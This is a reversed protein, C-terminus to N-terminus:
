FSSLVFPISCAIVYFPNKICNPGWFLIVFQRYSDFFKVFAKTSRNFDHDLDGKLLQIECVRLYVRELKLFIFNHLLKM